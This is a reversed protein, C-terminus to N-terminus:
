SPNSAQTLSAVTIWPTKREFFNGELQRVASDAAVITTANGPPTGLEYFSNQAVETLRFTREITITSIDTTHWYDYVMSCTTTIPLEALSFQGSVSVILQYPYTISEAMSRSPPVNLYKRDWELLGAGVHHPTTESVLWGGSPGPTDIPLGAWYPALVRLTLFYGSGRTRADLFPRAPGVQFALGPNYGDHLTTLPTM